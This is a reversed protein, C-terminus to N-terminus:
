ADIQDLEDDNYQKMGNYNVHHMEKEREMFNEYFDDYDDSYSSPLTGIGYKDEKKNQETDVESDIDKAKKTTEYGQYGDGWFQTPEFHDNSCVIDNVTTWGEGFKQIGKPTMVTVKEETFELFNLGINSAIWAMISSDSMDGEPIKVDRSMCLKMALESYDDWIGNHFLVGKDSVGHESNKEEIGLPFPHCLMSNIAGHTAIRYHIIIPLKIKQNKIIKMVNRPSMKKGKIWEVLGDKNIWSMGGGHPNTDEANKLMEFTPYTDEFMM